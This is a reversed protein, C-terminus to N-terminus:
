LIDAKEDLEREGIKDLINAIGYDIIERQYLLAAISTDEMSKM